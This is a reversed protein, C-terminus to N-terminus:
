ILRGDADYREVLRILDEADTWAIGCREDAAGYSMVLRGRDLIVSTTFVCPTTFRNPQEWAAEARFWPINARHVIVPLGDLQEKLIMFSQSYGRVKDEKGHYPLLWRGSGIRLPPTSAGLREREWAFKPRALFRLREVPAPFSDLDEGWSLYISPLPEQEGPIRSPTFPRQLMVVQPRGDIRLREPFPFVDRDEGWASNTLHTRYQFAREYHGGRLAELDVDFLVNVTVNENGAAGFPHQGARAWDPACQMPEDHEWYPGPSFMRCPCILLLKGEMWFWRPDEICGNAHNVVRRGDARILYLGEITRALAPQLAPRSFDATWTTGADHSVAYGLFIPYPLPQGPQKAQPWPGTARFLMHYTDPHEPDQIIAPNLVMTDAWSCGPQPRIVPAPLRHIAPVAFPAAAPSMAAVGGNM